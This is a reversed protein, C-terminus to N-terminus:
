SPVFQTLLRVQQCAVALLFRVPTVIAAPNAMQSTGGVMDRERILTSRAEAASAPLLGDLWYDLVARESWTMSPLMRGAGVRKERARMPARNNPNISLASHSYGTASYRAVFDKLVPDVKQKRDDTPPIRTGAFVFHICAAEVEESVIPRTDASADRKRPMTSTTLYPLQFLTIHLCKATATFSTSVICSTSSHPLLAVRSAASLVGKLSRGSGSCSTAGREALGSECVSGELARLLVVFWGYGGSSGAGAKSSASRGGHARRQQLHLRM